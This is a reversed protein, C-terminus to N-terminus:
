NTRDLSKKIQHHGINNYAQNIDIFVAVLDRKEKRAVELATELITLNIACGPMPMFGRQNGDIIAYDRLKKELIKEFIRRLVPLITIPRWNKLSDAQGGKDLLITRGLKWCKCLTGLELLRNFIKHLIQVIGDVKVARM